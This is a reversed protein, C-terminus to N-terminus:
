EATDKNTVATLAAIAVELQKEDPERTTLKQIWIGPKDILGLTTSNPFKSNLKLIEFSIGAIVPLLLLRYGLKLWFNLSNPILTYVLISILVVFIIFSTGCRPHATPYKQVNEVTLEKDEEYCHVSKHEAGHYQFIRKVDEMLSILVIYGVVLLAKIIGEVLNFVIGHNKLFPFFAQIGTTMALPLFKFIGIALAFAVIMTLTIQWTSLEEKQDTDPEDLSENASYNLTKIGVVLMEILSSIGRIFPWRLWKWKPLVNIKDNKISIEQNPKRVAVSVDYENRMMVGEIVAQGGVNKNPM